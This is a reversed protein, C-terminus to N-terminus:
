HRRRRRRRHSPPAGEAGPEKPQATSPRREGPALPHASAPAAPLRTVYTVVPGTPERRPPHRPATAGGRGNGRSPAAPPPPRRSPQSAPAGGRVQEPPRSPTAAPPPTHHPPPHPKTAGGRGEGRPPSPTVARQQGRQGHKEGRARQEGRPEQRQGRQERQEGRPEQRQGRQERQEGRPEQRQGRGGRHQPEPAPRGSPVFDPTLERRVYARWIERADGNAAQVAPDLPAFFRRLTELDREFFREAQSNHAAGVVQPFDIITPGNWAMLVNYPSLDGHILDCALMRVVQQRLDAYHEAARERPLVADVLRPAAHGDADVVAEMLLVGEYFMVPRPVRVGAAHLSYLAESEKAKWAEEAARQGFRSGRVMARQTRSDRVQRGEKYAANNHFSRAHLDKYVKAAVVEGAHQVLWIDAEKGSKLRAVVAEIVGDALLQQLPDSM